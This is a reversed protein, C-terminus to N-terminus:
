WGEDKDLSSVRGTGRLAFDPFEEKLQRDFEKIQKIGNEGDKTSFCSTIQWTYRGHNSLKVTIETFDLSENM